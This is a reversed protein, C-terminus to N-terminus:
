VRWKVFLTVTTDSITGGAIDGRLQIKEGAAIDINLTVDTFEDEGAGGTFSVIGTTSLLDDIYLDIDKSNGKNDETMATVKIITAPHPIVHGIVANSTSGIKLWDNNSVVNEAWMFTVTEVSLTKPGRTTDSFTFIPQGGITSLALADLGLITSVGDAIQTGTMSRNAGGTGESKDHVLFEDTSAMEAPSSTTGDIDLGIQPDGSVGNGDTVIIGLEDEDTSADITRSAYTDAATRVIFGNVTIANPIDLDEVVDTFTFRVNPSAGQDVGIENSLAVTVGAPLDSVDLDFDITDFGAGADTATVTVGIGGFTITEAGVTATVTGIDGVIVGYATGGAGGGSITITANGGGNDVISAVGAGAFDLTAFPGGAIPTGGFELNVGSIFCEWIGTIVELDGGGFVGAIGAVSPFDSTGDAITIPIGRFIIPGRLNNVQLDVFAKFSPINAANVADVVDDLSAITITFVTTGDDITFDGPTITLPIKQCLSVTDPIRRIAITSDVVSEATNDVIVIDGNRGINDAPITQVRSIREPGFRLGSKTIRLEDNIKRTM